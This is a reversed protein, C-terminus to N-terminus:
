DMTQAVYTGKALPVPDTFDVNVCDPPLDKITLTGAFYESELNNDVMISLPQVEMTTNGALNKGNCYATYNGQWLGGPFFYEDTATTAGLASASIFALVGIVIKFKM